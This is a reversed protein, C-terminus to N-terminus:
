TTMVTNYDRSLYLTIIISVLAYLDVNVDGAKFVGSVPYFLLTGDYEILAKSKTDRSDEFNILKTRLPVEDFVINDFSLRNHVYGLTHLERLGYIIQKVLGRDYEHDRSHKMYYSM